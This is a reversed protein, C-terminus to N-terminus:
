YLLRELRRLARSASRRYPFGLYTALMRSVRGLIPRDEVIVETRCSQRLGEPGHRVGLGSSKAGGLPAEVVLYNFMTTDNVAVSGAELRRALARARRPDGSFVAGVLGYPGEDAIRFADEADRARLVPLVPGFTEERAVAMEPTVDVLLTPAFFNAGLDLRRKGGTVIRAGGALADAIHREARDIVPPFTVAGVDVDIEADPSPPGQRLCGLEETCLRIFEDHVKAEVIVREIRVCMQGSHLFGSWIAAKAARRLDADALVIMPSNGGLELACPVLRAAAQQAVMRGSAQSGTFFVMDVGGVLAQGVEPGGVVVQFVGTPLGEERWLREVLLSTLPTVPSPKLVVANGAALPAISDAYNNLLPWNWPGIVGVVGRPLHVVRARKNRFLFPLRIEERLARRATWGTLFRTLECTYLVEASAEYRPKGAERVLTARVEPDDRLRRAFRRLARGRDRFPMAAWVPQAARASAIAEAVEAASHEPIEALREGTAPNVVTLPPVDRRYGTAGASAAHGDGRREVAPSSGASAGPGSGREPAPGPEDVTM